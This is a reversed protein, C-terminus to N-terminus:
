RAQRQPRHHMHLSGISAGLADLLSAARTALMRDITRSTDTAQGALLRAKTPRSDAILEATNTREDDDHMEDPNEPETTPRHQPKAYEFYPIALETKESTSNPKHWNIRKEDKTTSKPNSCSALAYALERLQKNTIQTFSTDSTPAYAVMLIPFRNADESHKPREKQQNAPKITGKLKDHNWTGQGKWQALRGAPITM